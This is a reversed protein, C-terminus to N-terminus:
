LLSTLLYECESQTSCEITMINDKKITKNDQCTTVTIPTIIGSANANSASPRTNYGRPMM